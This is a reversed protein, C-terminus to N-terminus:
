EDINKAKEEKGKIKLKEYNEPYKEKVESVWKDVDSEFVFSSERHLKLRNVEKWDKRKEANRLDEVLKKRKGQVLVTLANGLEESDVDHSAPYCCAKDSFSRIPAEGIKCDDPSRYKKECPRVKFSFPQYDWVPSGEIVSVSGGDPLYEIDYARGRYYCM